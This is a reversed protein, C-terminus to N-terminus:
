ASSPMRSVSEHSSNLRTSKRDEDLSAARARRKEAAVVLTSGPTELAHRLASTAARQSGGIDLASVGSPLNLAQAAIAANLRDIFPFTTSALYLNAIDNRGRGALADRAAEVAMTVVDEDWNGVAREGKAQGPLSPNIWSNAEAIVRRPLRLQPIYAGTAVIGVTM